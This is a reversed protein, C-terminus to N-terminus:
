FLRMKRELDAQKAADEEKQADSVTQVKEIQARLNKILHDKRISATKHEDMKESHKRLRESEEKAFKLEVETETLKEKLAQL